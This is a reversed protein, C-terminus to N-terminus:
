LAITEDSAQKGGKKRTDASIRANFPSTMGPICWYKKGSFFYQTQCDREGRESLTLVIGSM